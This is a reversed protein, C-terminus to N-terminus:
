SYEFVQTNAKETKSPQPGGSVVEYNSSSRDPQAWVRYSLTEPFGGSCDSSFSNENSNTMFLSSSQSSDLRNMSSQNGEVYKKM